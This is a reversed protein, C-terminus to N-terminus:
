AIPWGSQRFDRKSPMVDRIGPKSIPKAEDRKELNYLVEGIGFLGMVIAVLDLGDLLQISDYTFRSGGTLPLAHLQARAIHAIHGTHCDCVVNGVNQGNPVSHHHHSRM